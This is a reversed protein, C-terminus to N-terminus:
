SGDRGIALEGLDLDLERDAFAFGARALPAISPGRETHEAALDIRVHGGTRGPGTTLIADAREGDLAHRFGAGSRVLDTTSTADIPRPSSTWAGGWRTRDAADVVARELAASAADAMGEVVAHHLMLLCLDPLAKDLYGLGAGFRPNCETAFWGDTAAIGDLTFAGRFGVTARLHEGVRRV